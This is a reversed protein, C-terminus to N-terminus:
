RGIPLTLQPGTGVKGSLELRALEMLLSFTAKTDRDTADIYFWYDKYQVAVHADPPRENGKAKVSHVRFFNSMVLAWDFPEGQSDLTMPALRRKVHEPPIDIGHSVYYLAQLLSRTELDLNTLGESPFTSRFPILSEETISYEALGPKLHFVRVLDQVEPSDLAQPDVRMIAHPSKKILTWSADKDDARYEYGNKAAEVLDRASIAGAPLPGGLREERDEVGFVIEARDQLVQLVAMGQLFETMEPVQKPTPGSAAQANPVWNLNELYLRFVTSIPWTTKALYIVGDVPLPTFLKRTFEQDDLPTFSITPRDAGAV